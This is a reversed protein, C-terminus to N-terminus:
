KKGIYYGEGSRWKLFHYKELDQVELAEERGLYEEIYKIDRPETMQFSVIEKAQSSLTRNMRYPRQSVAWLDINSHRGRQVINAFSPSINYSSCYTDCEEVIFYTDGISYVLDAIYDFETSPNLPQYIIKFDEQYYKQLYNCLEPVDQFVIGYESYEGMTDYILFRPMDRLSNKIYYSKGGGRKGLIITVYSERNEM